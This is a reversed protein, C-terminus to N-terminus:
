GHPVPRYAMRKACNEASDPTGMELV